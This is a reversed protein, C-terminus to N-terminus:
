FPEALLAKLLTDHKALMFEQLLTNNNTLIALKFEQL